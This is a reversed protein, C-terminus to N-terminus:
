RLHGRKIKEDVSITGTNFKASIRNLLKQVVTANIKNLPKRNRRQRRLVFIDDIQSTEIDVNSSVDYTEAVIFFLCQPNGNKIKSATSVSGEYMTKDLYTKCEVCVIPIHIPHKQGDSTSIVERRYIGVDQDKVNFKIDVSDKFAEFYLSSYAKVSGYILVDNGFQAKFLRCLFEEIITSAFKSQPSFTSNKDVFDKYKNLAKVADPVSKGIGGLMATYEPYFKDIRPDEQKALMNSAHVYGEAKMSELTKVQDDSLPM